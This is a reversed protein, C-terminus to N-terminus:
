PGSLPFRHHIARVTHEAALSAAQIPDLNTVDTWHIGRWSAFPLKPKWCIGHIADAPDWKYSRVRSADRAAMLELRCRKSKLYEPSLFATLFHCEDVAEFLSKTLWISKAIDADTWLLHDKVMQIGYDGLYRRLAECYEDVLPTVEKVVEKRTAYSIFVKFPPSTFKQQM